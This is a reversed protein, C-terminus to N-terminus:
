LDQCTCISGSHGGSRFVKLGTRFTEGPINNVQSPNQNMTFHILVTNCPSEARLIFTSQNLKLVSFSREVSTVPLTLPLFHLASTEMSIWIQKKEIYDIMERPSYSAYDTFTHVAARVELFVDEIKTTCHTRWNRLTRQLNAVRFLRQGNVMFSMFM